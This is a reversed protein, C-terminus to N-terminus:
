SPLAATGSGSGVGERDDSIFFWSFHRNFQDEIRAGIEPPLLSRCDMLTALLDALDLRESFEVEDDEEQVTPSSRKDGSTLGHERAFQSIRLFHDRRDLQESSASM